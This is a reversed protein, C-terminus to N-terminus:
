KNGLWQLYGATGFTTYAVRDNLFFGLFLSLLAVEIFNAAALKQMQLLSIPNAFVFKGRNLLCNGINLEIRYNLIHNSWLRAYQLWRM